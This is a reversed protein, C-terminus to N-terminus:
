HSKNGGRWLPFELTLNKVWQTLVPVGMGKKERKKLKGLMMRKKFHNKVKEM